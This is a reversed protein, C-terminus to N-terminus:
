FNFKFGLQVQRSINSQSNSITGFTSGTVNMNPGNPIWTNTVNFAELRIQANYRDTFNLSKILSLDAIPAGPNRIASTYFGTGRYDLNSSNIVQWVPACSSPQGQVTTAGPTYTGTKSDFSPALQVCPNFWTQRSKSAATPNAILNANSPLGVPTGSQITEILNLQWGGVALEVPRSANGLLRHGHGFPLEYLASIVLRQPRDNAGVNKHPARDQPNLFALAEETRSWTYSGMISFGNSYRKEVLVQAANYWLQGVSEQGYAIGLFQPYPLLLQQRSLTAGNLNTNPVQGVFPNAVATGVYQSATQYTGGNGTPTTGVTQRISKIQADSLVNINRAGGAQNDNTNINQTHMGVYSLDIKIDHPLQQQVGASWQDARPIKRNVNNFIIGQGMFTGLGQSSGVPQLVTPFPDALPPANPDNGRPIYLDATTGGAINNPIYATDQAFGQAAGFAAEPLYFMGFGGRAVMNKFIQYVAGVRAQVHNYQTNFAGASQGGVGAFNLGGVLNQCAPCVAPDAAQAAGALPSTGTTNFGRNMRNQSEAPSGEIDYRLGLNLTLRNSVKWDDQVYYGQYWWRYLLRPTYQIISNISSNSAAPTGLLLSATPSGSTGNYATTPNAQTFNANFAFAGGGYVFSGGGTGFAINRIDGGIHVSHKGYIMQVSPQFGIVTSVGYRPNRTGADPINSQNGFSIRPPVPVFRESNFGGSFGLKTDDFNYVTSRDVKETYRALSARLDMIVRPSFVTISDVVASDNSRGLPDQADYLPGTFNYSGHDVQNRRGHAYRFYMREKDGFSQDVRGLYNKFHDESTNSGTSYNNVLLGTGVNPKPFANILQMGPSNQFRAQPIINGAFSDRICCNGNADLRTSWPDYIIPEGAASFDGQREALTPVTTLTPTPQVEHYSEFSGFFFSRDKKIPGGAAGGWDDLTHGGLNKGTVPDVSYRPQGAAKNSVTNADWQYRRLFDYVDGHIANTGAKTSVNFIGGGTRGYQADYFNNIVKFEQTADISPIYAVNLNAHSRDGATDSVADDPAGDILFSNSQRLGGNISFNANDGNDFPRQFAPNGQFQVGPVLQALMFPNRGALPLQQVRAEDILAGRTATGAELLPPTDSVTVVESVAGLPLSLNIEIKDGVHLVVNTQQATKFGQADASIVYTGPILFPITYNGDAASTATTVVGTEINKASVRAAPIAATSPDQIRGSVTARTEQAGLFAPACFGVVAAFVVMLIKRTFSRSM